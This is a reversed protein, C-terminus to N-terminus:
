RDRQRRREGADLSPNTYKDRQFEGPNWYRPSQYAISINNIQHPLVRFEEDRVLGLTAQVRQALIEAADIHSELHYKIIKLEQRVTYSSEELAPIKLALGENITMLTQVLTDTSRLCRSAKCVIKDEIHRLDQLCEPDITNCADWDSIDVVDM